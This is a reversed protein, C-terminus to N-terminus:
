AFLAPLGCATVLLWAGMVVLLSLVIKRFILPNITQDLSTGALIGLAIAPLSWLFHSWVLPTLNNNFAHSGVVVLSNILFFGQLNSKFEAPPWRRCNAYIVVPPGDTNYAGGLLGAIFGIGYAWVPHRLEPLRFEFLSYIAYGAIVAGLVALFVNEDIGKLAWVGIPIGLLAALALPRVARLNFASHYRALLFAELTLAVLAVLPAAVHIGLLEPLVAMALLASGFGTLSQTFVAFFIVLLPLLYDL